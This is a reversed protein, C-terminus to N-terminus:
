FKEFLKVIKDYYRSNSKYGKTFQDYPYIKNNKSKIFFKLFDNTIDNFTINENMELHDYFERLAPVTMKIVLPKILFSEKFEKFEMNIDGLLDNDIFYNYIKNLQESTLNNVTKKRLTSNINKEKVRYNPQNPEINIVNISQEILDNAKESDKLKDINIQNNVLPFKINILWSFILFLVNVILFLIISFENLEANNILLIIFVSNTILFLLFHFVKIREKKETFHFKGEEIFNIIKKDFTYIYYITFTTITVVVILFFLILKIM